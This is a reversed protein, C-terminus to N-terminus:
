RRSCSCRNFLNKRPATSLAPDELRATSARGSYCLQFPTRRQSYVVIRRKKTISTLWVQANVGVNRRAGTGEIVICIVPTSIRFGGISSEVAELPTPKGPALPMTKM